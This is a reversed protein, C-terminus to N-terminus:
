QMTEPRTVVLAAHPDAPPIEGIRACAVRRGGGIETLTVSVASKPLQKRGTLRIRRRM